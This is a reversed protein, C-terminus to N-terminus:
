VAINISSTVELGSRGGNREVGVGVRGSGRVGM